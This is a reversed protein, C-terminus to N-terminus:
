VLDKEFARHLVRDLAKELGLSLSEAIREGLKKKQSHKVKFIAASERQRYLYDDSTSLEDVLNLELARYGYWHEGTAVQDIAVKPRQTRVFEKFLVHTDELQEVFKQRGKPTIEGFYSVTRKYEGASLEEYDIDYKKLLKNVNPVSAVVGISGIVAFPAALLHDALCAMLYGGSAAMKDVSVILKIKHKKIRELQSAALGYSHVFGGPSELRVLVEDEPEASTLVATVEERLSEVSSAKVDGHFDLVFIKRKKPPSKKEKKLKKKEDKQKEKFQKESLVSRSMIHALDHFRETLDEVEISEAHSRSRLTLVFFTVLVAVISLTVVLAKGSFVGIEILSSM